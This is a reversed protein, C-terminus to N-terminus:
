RHAGHVRLLKGRLQVCGLVVLVCRTITVHVCLNEPEAFLSRRVARTLFLWTLLTIGHYTVTSAVVFHSRASQRIYLFCHRVYVCTKAGKGM